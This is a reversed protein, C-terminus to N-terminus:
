TGPPPKAQVSKVGGAVRSLSSSFCTVVWKKLGLGASYSSFCMVNRIFRIVIVAVAAAQSAVGALASGKEKLVPLASPRSPASDWGGLGPLELSLGGVVEDQRLGRRYTVGGNDSQDRRSSGQPVNTVDLDLDIM